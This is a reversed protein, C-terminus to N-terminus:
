RASPLVLIFMSSIGKNLASLPSSTVLISITMAGFPFDGCTRDAVPLVNISLLPLLMPATTEMCSMVSLFLASFSIM